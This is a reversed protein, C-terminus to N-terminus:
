HLTQLWAGTRQLVLQWWWLSIELVPTILAEIRSWGSNPYIVITWLKHDSLLELARPSQFGSAVFQPTWHEQGLATIQGYVTCWPLENRNNDTLYVYQIRKTNFTYQLHWDIIKIRSSGSTVIHQANMCTQAHKALLKWRKQPLCKWRTGTSSWADITLCEWCTQSYCRLPQLNSVQM